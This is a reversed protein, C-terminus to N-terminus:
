DLKECSSICDYYASYDFDSKQLHGYKTMDHPLVSLRKIESVFGIFDDTNIKHDFIVLYM